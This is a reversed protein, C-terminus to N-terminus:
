DGLDYTMYRVEFPLHDFRKKEGMTFGLKLYWDKLRTHADIIGISVQKMGYNRAQELVHDVLEKGIGQRRHRPLVSLRNLHAVGDGANKLAVCGIFDGRVHYLFYVEGRDMGKQIWQPRCLSPHKPCNDPTLNFKEAINQHSKRIIGAIAPADQPPAKVIPPSM